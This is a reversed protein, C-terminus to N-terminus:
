LESCSFTDSKECIRFFVKKSDLIDKLFQELIVQRHLKFFIECISKIGLFSFFILLRFNSKKM